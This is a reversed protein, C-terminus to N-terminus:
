RAEPANQSAGAPRSARPAKVIGQQIMSEAMDLVMTEVSRPRWGLVRRARESSVDQRKGLEAVALATTKDFLAIAKLVWSPLRRTPVKFGRPGYHRALIQAISQWSTHELALIFRKGAAEPYSLAAIHADAVDRVDVPAWGLDPCGPLEAALLKRVVEGSISIEEGLVPGLVLGPQMTVLQFRQGEPLAKVYDWAAREALTKSREYPGVEDNLTSWDSEDFTKSGDRRNGWIVAATSSTIVVREVRAGAAAKLVRLAGDRAPGIVEDASKVAKRPVPSAVHLIQRCGAVAEPWGADSSLDAEVLSLRTPDALKGLVQRVRGARDARRVTGRVRHGKELLRAICHLAVFGSAGTVLVPDGKAGDRQQDRSAEPINRSNEAV